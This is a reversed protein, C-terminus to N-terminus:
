GRSFVGLCIGVPCNGWAFYGSSMYRGDLFIDYIQYKSNALLYKSHSINLNHIYHDELHEALVPTPTSM